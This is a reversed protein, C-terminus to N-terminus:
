DDLAIRTRDAEILGELKLGVDPLGAMTPAFALVLRGLADAEIEIKGSFGPRDGATRAEGALTLRTEAEGLRLRLRAPAAAAGVRGLTGDFELTQGRARLRGEGHFPGALSEAGLTADIAEIRENLGSRADRYTLTGDEIRVASITVAPAGGGSADPAPGSAPEPNPSSKPGPAAQAKPPEDFIWNRRGDALVEFAVVPRVLRVGAVEIRGSLLPLLAINIRLSDLRAFDPARAGPLNALRVNGVILVPAPLLTADLDGEITLRRGTAKEVAAAIEPKFRNWDVFGPAILAAAVLAVVLILLGVVLRRM